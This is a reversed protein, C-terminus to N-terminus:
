RPVQSINNKASIQAIVADILKKSEQVGDAFGLRYGERHASAYIQMNDTMAEEVLKGFDIKPYIM